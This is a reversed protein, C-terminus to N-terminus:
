DGWAFPLPEDGKRKPDVVSQIRKRSVDYRHALEAVGVGQSYETIIKARLERSLVTTRGCAKARPRRSEVSTQATSSPQHRELEVVADLMKLMMRGADSALNVKGLELVVVGVQRADLTRITNLVDEANRGLDHLRAVVVVDGAHLRQMMANFQHATTRPVIRSAAEDAFCCAICYGANDIDVRSDMGAQEEVDMCRYAVIEM